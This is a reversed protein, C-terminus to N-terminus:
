AEGEGSPSPRCGGGGAGNRTPIHGTSIWNPRPRLALRRNAVAAATKRGPAWSAPPPPPPPSPLELDIFDPSATVATSSSGGGISNYYPLAGGRAAMTKRIPFIPPEVPTPTHEPSAPTYEPSAV